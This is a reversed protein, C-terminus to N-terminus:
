KQDATDEAETDGESHRVAVHQSTLRPSLWETVLPTITATVVALVVVAALLNDDLLGAGFGLFAVALATSLQPVVAIGLFSSELCTYGNARGALWGSVFKSVILGVVIAVTLALTDFGEKFVTLDVSAGVVVFFVPVFFGYSLAHLKAKILRSKISGALVLGAFFAAIIAHLGVLEFLVVFGILILIIFRLEKEFLDQEEAYEESFALWRIKPVLWAVLLIGAILAGYVAITAFTFTGAVSQLFVSLLFLSVADVVIAAGVIMKGLESDILRHQHLQPILLAVSSSMFIIGVLISTAVSYGFLAAILYGVLTPLIAITLATVALHKKIGDTGTFKSELGAMFMLFVLGISALFQITPDTEFIGLGGPGIMMGGVLLAVVWPIRMRSFLQSFVVAVLLILFFSSFPLMYYKPYWPM